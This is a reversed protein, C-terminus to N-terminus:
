TDAVSKKVRWYICFLLNCLYKIILHKTSFWTAYHAVHMNCLEHLMSPISHQM